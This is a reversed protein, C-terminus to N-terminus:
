SRSQRARHCSAMLTHGAIVTEKDAIAFGVGSAVGDGINVIVGGYGTTPDKILQLRLSPQNMRRSVRNNQAVTARAAFAAVASFAPGVILAVDQLSALPLTV